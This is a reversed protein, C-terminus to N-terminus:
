KPNLTGVGWVGRPLPPKRIRKRRWTQQSRTVSGCLASELQPSESFLIQAACLPLPPRSWGGCTFRKSQLVPHPRCLKQLHSNNPVKPANVDLCGQFVELGSLAKQFGARSGPNSTRPLMHCLVRFNGCRMPTASQGAEM